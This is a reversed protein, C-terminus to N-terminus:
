FTYDITFTDDYDYDASVLHYQVSMTNSCTNVTGTGSITWTYGFQSWTNDVVKVTFTAPEIQLGVVMGSDWFNDIELLNEGIKTFNTAYGSGDAPYTTGGSYKEVSSAETIFNGEVYECDDDAISVKFTGPRPYSDTTFGGSNDTVKLILSEAEEVSFDNLIKIKFSGQFTDKPITATVSNGSGGVFEWDQGYVASQGEAFSVTVQVDQPNSVVGTIYIPVTIENASEQVTSSGPSSFGLSKYEASAYEEHNNCATFVAFM